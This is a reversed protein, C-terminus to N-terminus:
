RPSLIHCPLSKSWVDKRLRYMKPFTGFGRKLTRKSGPRERDTSNSIHVSVIALLASCGVGSLTRQAGANHM